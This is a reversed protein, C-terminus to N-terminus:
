SIAVSSPTLRLVMSFWTWRDNFFSRSAQRSSKRVTESYVFGPVLRRRRRVRAGRKTSRAKVVDSRLEDLSEVLVDVPM